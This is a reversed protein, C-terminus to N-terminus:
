GEPKRQVVESPQPWAIQGNLAGLKDFLLASAAQIAIYEEPSVEQVEDLVAVAHGMLARAMNVLTPAEGRLHSRIFGTVPRTELYGVCPEITVTAEGIQYTRVSHPLDNDDTSM